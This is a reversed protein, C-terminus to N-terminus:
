FQAVQTFHGALTWGRCGVNPVRAQRAWLLGQSVGFLVRLTSPAQSGRDVHVPSVPNDVMVATYTFQVEWSRQLVRCSISAWSIDLFVM